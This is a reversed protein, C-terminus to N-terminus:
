SPLARAIAPLEPNAVPRMQGGLMVVEKNRTVQRVAHAAELPFGIAVEAAGRPSRVFTYVGGAPVDDPTTHSVIVTPTRRDFGTGDADRWAISTDDFLEDDGSGDGQDGAGALARGRSPGGV